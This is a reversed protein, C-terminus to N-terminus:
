ALAILESVRKKIGLVNKPKVAKDTSITIVSIKKNRKAVNLVNKTGFINNRIASHINKELINSHM